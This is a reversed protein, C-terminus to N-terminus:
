TQPYRPSPYVHQDPENVNTSLFTTWVHGHEVVSGPAPESGCHADAVFLDRASLEEELEADLVGVAQRAHVLEGVRVGIRHDLVEVAVHQRELRGRAEEFVGVRVHELVDLAHLLLIEQEQGPAVVARLIDLIAQRDAGDVLGDGERDLGVEPHVVEVETGDALAEFFCEGVLGFARGIHEAREHLEHEEVDAERDVRVDELAFPRDALLLLRDPLERCRRQLDAVPQEDEGDDAHEVAVARPLERFSQERADPLGRAFTTIRSTVPTGVTSEFTAM